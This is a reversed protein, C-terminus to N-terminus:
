SKKIPPKFKCQPTQNTLKVQNKMIKESKESFEGHFHFLKTEFPPEFSGGVGEPDAVALPKDFKNCPM